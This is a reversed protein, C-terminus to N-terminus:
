FLETEILVDENGDCSHRFTFVPTEGTNDIRFDGLQIIDMGIILGIDYGRYRANATSLVTINKIMAMSPLEIDIVYEKSFSQGTHSSMSMEGCSKLNFASIVDESIHSHAAGTDWLAVTEMHKDEFCIIAKTIIHDHTESYVNKYTIYNM